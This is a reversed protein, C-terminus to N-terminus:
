SRRKSQDARQSRFPIMSEIRPHIKLPEAHRFLIFVNERISTRQATNLISEASGPFSVLCISVILAILM